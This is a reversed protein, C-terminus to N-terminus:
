RTGTIQSGSIVQDTWCEGEARGQFQRSYQWYDDGKVWTREGSQRPLLHSFLLDAVQKLRWSTRKLRGRTAICAQGTWIRPCQSTGQWTSTPSCKRNSLSSNAKLCHASRKLLSTKKLSPDPCWFRTMFHKSDRQIRSTRESFNRLARSRSFLVM